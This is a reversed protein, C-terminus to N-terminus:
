LEGSVRLRRAIIDSNHTPNNRILKSITLNVELAARASANNM